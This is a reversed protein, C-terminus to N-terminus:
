IEGLLKAKKAEFEEATISGDDRLRALKAIRDEPLDSTPGSAGHANLAKTRAERMRYLLGQFAEPDPIDQFRSQGSEGASEVLLDGSKLMRELVNQNFLVNNINELPIEIGTRAVMGSRTILRENTLVYTTFWWNIFPVVALPILALIILGTIVWDIVVDDPPMWTHVSIIAALGLIEWLVPFALM